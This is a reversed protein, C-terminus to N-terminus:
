SALKGWLNKDLARPNCHQGVWPKETPALSGFEYNTSLRSLWAGGAGVNRMVRFLTHQKNDVGNQIIIEAARLPLDCLGLAQCTRSAIDAGTCLKSNANEVDKWSLVANSTGFLGAKCPCRLIFHLFPLKGGVQENLFVSARVGFHKGTIEM